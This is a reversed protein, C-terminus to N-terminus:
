SHGAVPLADASDQVAPQAVNDFGKAKEIIADTDVASLQISVTPNIPDDSLRIAGGSLDVWTRLKQAVVQHERGPIRSRITGHNLAALRICTMDKLAEVGHVLSCLLLSKILRDDNQFRALRDAIEPDTKARERDVELDIEHQQELMPLLKNQYLNKANQFNVRMVDTFAEDGHAVVDWLDGLPIVDGLRM